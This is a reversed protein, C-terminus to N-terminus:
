NLKFTVKETIAVSLDKTMTFYSFDPSTSFPANFLACLSCAEEKRRGPSQKRSSFPRKESVLVDRM